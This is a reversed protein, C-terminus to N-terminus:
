AIRVMGVSWGSVVAPTCDVLEFGHPALERVLVRYSQEGYDTTGPWHAAIMGWHPGHADDDFTCGQLEFFTAGGPISRYIAQSNGGGLLRVNGAGDLLGGGRYASWGSPPTGASGNFDDALLLTGGPATRAEFRDVRFGVTALATIAVLSNASRDAHDNCEAVLGGDKYGRMWNPGAVHVGFSFPASPPM